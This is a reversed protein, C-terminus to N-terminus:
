IKCLFIVKSSVTLYPRPRNEERNREPSPTLRPLHARRLSVFLGLPAKERKKERSVEGRLGGCDLIKLDKRFPPEFTEVRDILGGKLGLNLCLGM